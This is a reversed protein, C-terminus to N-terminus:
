PKFMPKKKDEEAEEEDEEPERSRSIESSIFNIVDMMIGMDRDLADECDEKTVNCEESELKAANQIGWLLLDPVDDIEISAVAREIEMLKTVKYKKMLRALNRRGFIFSYEVGKIQITNM